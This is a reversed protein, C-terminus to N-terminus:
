RRHFGSALPGRQSGPRVARPFVPASVPPSFLFGQGLDCDFGRLRSLQDVGEVGEAVVTLKLAHALDVIASVIVADPESAILQEVLRADVKLM